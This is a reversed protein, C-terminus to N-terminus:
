NRIGNWMEKIINKKRLKAFARREIDQVNQKTTGILRAVETHTMMADEISVNEVTVGGDTHTGHLCDARRCRRGRQKPKGCFECPVRPQSADRTGPM